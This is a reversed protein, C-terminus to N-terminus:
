ERMYLGEQSSSDALISDVYWEYINGGVGSLLGWINDDGQDNDSASYFSLEEQKMMKESDSLNNLDVQDQLMQTELAEMGEIRTTPMGHGDATPVMTTDRIPATGLTITPATIGTSPPRELDNRSGGMPAFSTASSEM